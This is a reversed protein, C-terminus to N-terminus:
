VVRRFKKKKKIPLTIKTIIKKKLNLKGIVSESNGYNFSTDFYSIENKRIINNIKSIEKSKIKIKNLGYKLGFQVTGITLHM